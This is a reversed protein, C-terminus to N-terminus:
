RASDARRALPVTPAALSALEDPRASDLDFFSVGPSGDLWYIQPLDFNFGGPGLFVSYPFTPHQLVEAQGALAISFRSGLQSRLTRVFLQAAGCSALLAAAVM